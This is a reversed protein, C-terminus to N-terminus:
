SARRTRLSEADSDDIAQFRRRQAGRAKSFFFDAGMRVANERFEPSAHTTLM